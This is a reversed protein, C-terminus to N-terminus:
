CDPGIFRIEKRIMQMSEIDVKRDADETMFIFGGKLEEVVNLKFDTIWSVGTKKETVTYNVQYSVGSALDITENLDKETSLVVDGDGTIVKWEFTYDEPNAVETKGETGLVQKKLDVELYLVHGRGVTTDKLVETLDIDQVWNYSYNGKDEYCSNLVGALLLSILGIYIYKLM